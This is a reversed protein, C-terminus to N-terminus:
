YWWKYHASNASCVLRFVSSLHLIFCSHFFLSLSLPLCFLSFLSPKLLLLIWSFTFFITKVCLCVSRSSWSSSSVVGGVQGVVDSCLTSLPFVFPFGYRMEAEDGRRSKFGLKVPWALSLWCARSISIHSLCNPILKKEMKFGVCGASLGVAEWSIVRRCLFYDSSIANSFEM